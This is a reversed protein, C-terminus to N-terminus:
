FFYIDIFGEFSKLLFFCFSNLLYGGLNNHTIQIKLNKIKWGQRELNLSAEKKEMQRLKTESFKKWVEAWPAPEDFEMNGPFSALPRNAAKPDWEEINFEKQYNFLKESKTCCIVIDHYRKEHRGDM